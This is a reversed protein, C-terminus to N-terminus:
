GFTLDFTEDFIRSEMMGSSATAPCIKKSSYYQVIRKDIINGPSVKLQQGAKLTDTVELGNEQALLFVGEVSGYVQIALDALSQNSLVTVKM